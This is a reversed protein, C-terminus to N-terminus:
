FKSIGLRAAVSGAVEEPRQVRLVEFGAARGSAEGAESDEVVLPRAAPLNRAAFLYPDPAPKLAGGENGCVLFQFCSRIGALELFPEVESRASSSVVALRMQSLAKLIDAIRPSLPLATEMKERFIKKKLPYLAFLEDVSVSLALDEKMVSLMHREAIGVCRRQYFDWDLDVGFPTLLERWCEYHVPESDVIVGDFDFLVADFPAGQTLGSM